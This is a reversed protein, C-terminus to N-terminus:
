LDMDDPHGVWERPWGPLHGIWQSRRRRRNSISSQSCCQVETWQGDLRVSQGCCVCPQQRQHGIGDVVSDNHGDVSNPLTLYLFKPLAVKPSDVNLFSSQITITTIPRLLLELFIKHQVVDLPYIPSQSQHQGSFMDPPRFPLELYDTVKSFQGLM